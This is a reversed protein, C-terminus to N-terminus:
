EDSGRVRFIDGVPYVLYLSTSLYFEELAIFAIYIRWVNKHFCFGRFVRIYSSFFRWSNWELAGKWEMVTSVFVNMGWVHSMGDLTFSKGNLSM